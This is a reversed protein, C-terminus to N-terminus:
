GEPSRAHKEFFEWMLDNASIDETSVGLFAAAGTPQIGPWTHGGGEIEILVVESGDRGNRWTKRIVRTGDAIRDPLREVEPDGDCENAVVWSRISYEVSRFDTVGRGVRGEGYGGDFPAFRDGTGHFHIVAVPRSPHIADLMLPGGVPAIAAIQDSLEAALRYSIIGGNSLGTAFVAGRDLTAVSGLEGLLQRVFAVDDIENHMAYGCCGGGNFSLGEDPDVGSGYPYVALFGEKESKEDMGSLHVMTDPNGGGGHFILVVPTARESDFSAPVHIRYRRESDDMVVGRVSVGPKLKGSSVPAPNSVSAPAETMSSVLAHAFEAWSLVGDGNTDATEGLRQRLQPFAGRESVSLQGDDNGDLREF